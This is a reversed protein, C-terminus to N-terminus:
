LIWNRLNKQAKVYEESLNLVSMTMFPYKKRAEEKLENYDEISKSGVNEWFDYSFGRKQLIEKNEPIIARITYQDIYPTCLDVQLNREKLGKPRFDYWKDVLNIDLGDYYGLILYKYFASDDRQISQMRKKLTFLIGKFEGM